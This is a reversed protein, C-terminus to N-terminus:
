LPSSQQSLPFGLAATYLVLCGPGHCFMRDQSGVLVTIVHSDCAAAPLTCTHTHTSQLSHECIHTHATNRCARMGTSHVYTCMGSYVIPILPHTCASHTHAQLCAHMRIHAVPLHLCSCFPPSSLLWPLEGLKCCEPLSVASNRYGIVM